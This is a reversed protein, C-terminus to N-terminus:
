QAAPAPVGAPAHVPRVARRIAAVGVIMILGGIALLWSGAGLDGFNEFAAAIFTQAALGFTTAAVILALDAVGPSSRVMSATLAATGLALLLILLGLTVSLLRNM